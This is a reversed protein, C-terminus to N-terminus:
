STGKPRTGHVLLRDAHDAFLEQPYRVFLSERPFMFRPCSRPLRLQERPIHFVRAADAETHSADLWSEQERANIFDLNDALAHTSGIEIVWDARDGSLTFWPFYGIGGGYYSFDDGAHSSPRQVLRVETHLNRYVLLVHWLAALMILPVDRIDASPLPLLRQSFYDDRGAGIEGSTRMFHHYCSSFLWLNATGFLSEPCYNRVVDLCDAADYMRHRIVSLGAALGTQFSIKSFTHPDFEGRFRPLQQELMSWGSAGIADVSRQPHFFDPILRSLDPVVLLEPGSLSSFYEAVWRAGWLLSFTALNLRNQEPIYIAESHSRWDTRSFYQSLDLGWWDFREFPSVMLLDNPRQSADRQVALAMMLPSGSRSFEFLGELDRRKVGLKICRSGLPSNEVYELRGTSKVQWELTVNESNKWLSPMSIRFDVKQTDPVIQSVRPAGSGTLWWELMDQFTREAIHGRHEAEQGTIGTNGPM